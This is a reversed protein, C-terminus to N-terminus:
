KKVWVHQMGNDYYIEEFGHNKLNEMVKAYNCKQGYDAEFIITELQDYLKPNEDFFRELYGECDAVLCNFKLNYKEEISELTFHDIVSTEDDSFTSGYGNYWNDLNTLGLRKNSIFGKVIHYHCNNAKKNKELAEWVRSDPEVSVQAQKDTLNQNIYYSVTGYRAGLELVVHEPKVFRQALLQEDREMNVHDIVRNIENVFFM